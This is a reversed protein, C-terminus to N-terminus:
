KRLDNSEIFARSLELCALGLSYQNTQEDRKLYRYYTLTALLRFTTSPSLDIGVSLELMTRPNGDALLSLIRFARDLVRINYRYDNKTNSSNPKRSM